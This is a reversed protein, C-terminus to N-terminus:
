DIPYSQWVVRCQNCDYGSNALCPSLSALTILAMSRKGPLFVMVSRTTLLIMCALFRKFNYVSKLQVIVKITCLSQEQQQKM